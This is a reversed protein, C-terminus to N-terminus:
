PLARVSRLDGPAAGIQQCVGETLRTEGLRTEIFLGGAGIDRTEFRGIRHGTSFLDVDLEIPYRFDRRLEQKM